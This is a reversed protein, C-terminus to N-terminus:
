ACIVAKAAALFGEKYDDKDGGYTIEGTAKDVRGMYSTGGDYVAFDNDDAAVAVGECYRVATGPVFEQWEPKYFGNIFSISTM